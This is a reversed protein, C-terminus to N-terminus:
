MTITLTTGSLVFMNKTLIKSGGVTANGTPVVIGNNATIRGNAVITGDTTIGSATMESKRVTGDDLKKEQYFAQGRINGTTVIKGTGAIEECAIKKGSITGNTTSINGGATLNGGSITGTSIIDGDTSIGEGITTKITINKGEPTHNNIIQNNAYISNSSAIDGDETKIDGKSTSINGELTNINGFDTSIHGYSTNIAGGGRINGTSTLTAGKVEHTAEINWDASINGGVGDKQAAKLNKGEIEGTANINGSSNLTAGSITGAAVVDGKSDLKNVTVIGKNTTTATIDGEVTLNDKATVVGILTSTSGVSLTGTNAVLNVGTINGSATIDTAGTVTGNLSINTDSSLSNGKVVGTGTINVGTIAGESNLTAGSITGEPVNVNGKIVDLDNEIEAVNITAKTTIKVNEAEFTKTKFENENATIYDNIKTLLSILKGGEKVYVDYVKLGDEEFTALINGSNDTINWIKESNKIEDVSINDTIMSKSSITGDEIVVDDNSGVAIKEEINLTKSAINGNIATINGDIAAINGDVSLNGNENDETKSVTLNNTNITAGSINDSAIVDGSVEINGNGNIGKEFTTTDKFTSTGTVELTGGISTNGTITASSAEIAGNILDAELEGVTIKGSTIEVLEDNGIIKISSTSSIPKNITISDQDSTITEIKLTNGNISEEINLSKGEIADTAKLSNGNIAGSATIKGDELTIENSDKKIVLKQTEISTALSSKYDNFDKVLSKDKILIDITNIGLENITAVENGKNDVFTFEDKNYILDNTELSGATLKNLISANSGSITGTVDLTGAIDVNKNTVIDEEFTAANKVTLNNEVILNGDSGDTKTKKVTLNNITASPVSVSETAVINKSTVTGNSATINGNSATIDGSIVAKESEIKKAINTVHNNFNTELPTFEDKVHNNFNTELPTFEDKVHDNFTTIDLKESIKKLVTTSFNDDDGLATALEKLTNLEDPAGAVLEAIKNDITTNINEGNLILVDANINNADIDTTALGDKNVQMIINEDTTGDTIVFTNDNNKWKNNVLIDNVTLDNINGSTSINLSSASINGDVEVGGKSKLTNATIVGNGSTTATLNGKLIENGNITLQNQVIANGTTSDGEEKQVILNKTTISDSDIAGTISTNGGIEVETATIKKANITETATINNTAQLDKTIIKTTVNVNNAAVDGTLTINAGTIGESLTLKKGSIDGDVSITGTATINGDITAKKSVIEKSINEQYDSLNDSVKKINENLVKDADDIKKTLSTNLDNISGTLTNNVENIKNTLTTNVATDKDNIIKLLDEETSEATPKVYINTTHLGNEDVSVIINSGDTINFVKNDNQWEGEVLINNVTLDNINGSNVSLNNSVTADGTIELGAQGTIKGAATLTSGTAIAGTASINNTATINKGQITETASINNTATINKGSIDGNETTINGSAIIDNISLDGSATIDTAGTITGNLSINSDSILSNGRINGSGTINGSATIGVAEINGETTIDGDLVIAGQVTLNNNVTANEVTLQNGTISESGNINKSEFNEAINQENLFLTKTDINITELGKNDVKLIINSDETGDTIVFSKNDTTEIHETKEQLIPIETNYKDVHSDFAQKLPDFEDEIHTDYAEKFPNFADEIHTDYAEKFPNFVDEIHTDIKDNVAKFDNSVTTAFQADNNLAAAVEGFSDLNSPANNILAQKESEFVSKDLKNNQLNDIQTSITTTFNPDNNIAAAIKRLTNLTEPSNDVVVAIKDDVIDLIDEGDLMLAITNLGNEDVQMIINGNPDTINFVSDNHKLDGNLSIDGTVNLNNAIDVRNTVIHDSEIFVTEIENSKLKITEVLESLNEKYEEFDEVHDTIATALEGLTNLDEPANNILNTFRNDVATQYESFEQQHEEFDKSLTTFVGNVHDDFTTKDLKKSELNGIQTSITTAFNPDDGLAAALENLTNLTEPSSDVLDAIRNNIIDLVNEGNLLLAITNLGRSDVQTVIYGNSDTISFVSNNNKFEGNLIIDEAVNLNNINVQNASLDDTVISTSEIENVNLKDTTIQEVATKKYEEFAEIHENIKSNINEEEAYSSPKVFLNTTHFGDKDITAIIHGDNDVVSLLNVLQNGDLNKTREDVPIFENIIHEDFDNIHNVVSQNLNNIKNTNSQIKDAVNENNLIINKVQITAASLGNDDVLLGIRGNSDVIKFSNDENTDIYQLQNNIDGISSEFEEIYEDFDDIHNIVKQNLSSIKNKNSEIKDIINENQVLIQEAQMTAVSVGNDDVLLGIRGNSDVIKFSNDENTDIYQLQNNIDGISSEFEEIYEDFDNKLNTINENAKAINEENSTIIENVGKSNKNLFLDTSYIGAADAKFIIHGNDDAVNFSGSGDDEINPKNELSAYDKNDWNERDEASVHVDKDEIHNKVVNEDAPVYGLANIVKEDTINEGSLRLLKDKQQLYVGM